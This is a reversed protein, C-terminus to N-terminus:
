TNIIQYSYEYIYIYIRVHAKIAKFLVHKSCSLPYVCFSFFIQSSITQFLITCIYTEFSDILFVSDFTYWLYEFYPISSCIRVFDPLSPFFRVPELLYRYYRGIWYM